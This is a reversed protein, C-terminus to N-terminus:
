AKDVLGGNVYRTIVIVHICPMVHQITCTCAHLSVVATVHIQVQLKHGIAELVIDQNNGLSFRNDM